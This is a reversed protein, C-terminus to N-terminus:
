CCDDFILWHEASLGSAQLAACLLLVSGAIAEAAFAPAFSGPVREPPFNGDRVFLLWYPQM